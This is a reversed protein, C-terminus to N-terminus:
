STKRKKKFLYEVSEEFIKAHSLKMIGGYLVVALVIRAFLLVVLNTISLTIIYTFAMVGAAILFFPMIDKLMESLCLGILKHAFYQWVGLWLVNFFTYALVMAMIGYSYTVYIILLQFALQATSVWMFIDSRLHSFTLNNYISVFPLFAGGIALVQLLPVSELWKATIVILTLEKAVIALGFMCPFSLFATFRMIKRFVQKEREKDTRVSSLVPQTTSSITNTILSSAMTNWKNAQTYIGVEKPKFLRGFVVTLINNGITNIITTILIKYSFSFMRKIPGVSFHLKPLWRVYYLRGIDTIFIYSVQQFALSWYGLGSLASTIGIIGSLCLAVISIIAREKAMIKRVMFANHSIGIASLVFTIFVFRSLPILCPQHFFDAILPASFFLIVYLSLSITTSFWFVSNYDEETIDQGNVLATTFGSDQLNGAILTFIAIMGVIGYDDVSLIRLLFIGIVFNLFQTSGSNIAGWFLGKATKEKLTEM